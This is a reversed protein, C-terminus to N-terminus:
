LPGWLTTRSGSADILRQMLQSRTTATTWNGLLPSGMPQLAGYKGTGWWRRADAWTWTWQVLSALTFSWVQGFAQGILFEPPSAWCCSNQRRLLEQPKWPAWHYLIQRRICSVCSIHTQKRPWSFRGSSSIAVWELARAQLIGHVSSGPPSCDIPSGLVPYSQAHICALCNM